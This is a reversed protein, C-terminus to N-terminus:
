RDLQGGINASPREYRALHHGCRAYREALVHRRNLRKPFNAIDAGNALLVQIVLSYDPTKMLATEGDNDRANVDAGNALLVYALKFHDDEAAYMLATKGNDNKANVDAGNALLVQAVKFYNKGAANM